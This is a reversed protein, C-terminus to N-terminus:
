TPQDTSSSGYRTHFNALCAVVFGMCGYPMEPLDAQGPDLSALKITIADYLVCVYM